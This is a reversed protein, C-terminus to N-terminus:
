SSHFGVSTFPLPAGGTSNKGYRHPISVEGTAWTCKSDQANKGYRHPISVLYDFYQKNYRM